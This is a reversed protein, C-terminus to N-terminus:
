RLGCYAIELESNNVNGNHCNGPISICNISAPFSVGDGDYLTGDSEIDYALVLSPVLPIHEPTEDRDVLQYSFLTSGDSGICIYIYLAGIASSNKYYNTEISIGNTEIQYTTNEIGHTSIVTTASSQINIADVTVNYQRNRRM